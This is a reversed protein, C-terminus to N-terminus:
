LKSQSTEDAAPPCGVPSRLVEEDHMEPRGIDKEKQAPVRTPCPTVVTREMGGSKKGEATKLRSGQSCIGWGQTEVDALHAVHLFGGDTDLINSAGSRRLKLEHRGVPDSAGLGVAGGVGVM